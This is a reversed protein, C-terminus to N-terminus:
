GIDWQYKHSHHIRIQKILEGNVLIKSQDKIFADVDKIDVVSKPVGEELAFLIPSFKRNAHIFVKEKGDRGLQYTIEKIVLRFGAGELVAEKMDWSKILYASAINSKRLIKAGNEAEERSAYRGLYVVYLKGREEITEQRYFPRHGLKKIRDVMSMANNLEKFAGLQVSYIKQQEDATCISCLSFFVSSLSLGMILHNVMFCRAWKKHHLSRSSILLTM